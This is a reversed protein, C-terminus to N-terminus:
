KAYTSVTLYYTLKNRDKSDAKLVLKEIAAYYPNKKVEEIFRMVSNYQCQGQCEVTWIKYSDSAKPKKQRLQVSKAKMGCQQLQKTIEDRFLISQQEGAVPVKFVPVMRAVTEKRAIDSDRVSLFRDLTERLQLREAKVQQYNKLIPEILNYGLILVATLLLLKMIRKERPKLKKWM